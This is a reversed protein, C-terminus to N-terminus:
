EVGIMSGHAATAIFCGGGGGGSGSSTATASSSHSSTDLTGVTAVNSYESNGSGNFTRVRFYYDTSENLGTSSYTTIDANVIAIESYMGELGTKREIKYGWEVSSNDAWSLDIRSSSIAKASLRTPAALPTTAHEENSAASDGASNFARVRFYYTTGDDVTMDLYSVADQAATGVHTYPGGATTARVIKFGSEDAANDTWSLGVRSASVSVADLNYPRPDLLPIDPNVSKDANIRGAMLMQGTLAPIVDVANLIRDKVEDYALTFHGNQALDEAWILAALGSVHPTAMSTGSCPGYGDGDDDHCTGSLHGFPVFTSYIDVGPAVIDVSTAGYNSFSALADNQDTAAVAIINNLDYSAPYAATDGNDLADNGAAALFLIGADRATGIAEYELVSYTSGTFSANIIKAKNDIAYDIAEIEDAVSGNGNADLMKLPMISVSWNVGAIGTGNDGEAGITGSVHTGHDNDDDPDNDNNVFDWGYYDDIKGNGDDDMQNNSPSGAVWDEGLNRWINGTLDEHDLDVGTDLVAVVVDKSGTQFDWAEPADIDADVSGGTQGTNDLGWLEGFGVDNPVTFSVHRVYNPEVYEVDPDDQYDELAEELSTGQPLKVHQMALAKFTRLVCIGRLARHGALGARVASRYKVLLEGPVYTGQRFTHRKGGAVAGSPSLLLCAIVMVWMPLNRLTKVM